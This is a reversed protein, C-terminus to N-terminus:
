KLIDFPITINPNDDVIINLEYEGMPWNEKPKNLSILVQNSGEINFKSM